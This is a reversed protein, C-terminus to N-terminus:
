WDMTVAAVRWLISTVLAARVTYTWAGSTQTTLACKCEKSAKWSEWSDSYIINQSTQSVTTQETSTSQELTWLNLHATHVEKLFSLHAMTDLELALNFNSKHAVITTRTSSRQTKEYRKWEHFHVKQKTKTKTMINVHFHSFYSEHYKEFEWRIVMNQCEFRTLNALDPIVTYHMISTILFEM